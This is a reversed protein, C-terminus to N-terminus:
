ETPKDVSIYVTRVGTGSERFVPGVFEFLNGNKEDLWDRFEVARRDSRFTWGLGMVAVLRGGPKLWEYAHKVHLIDQSRSFPPNMLVRDVRPEIWREEQGAEKLMGPKPPVLELFDECTVAFDKKILSDAMKQNLEVCEVKGGANRASEAIAGLGASPELVTMGFSIEAAELLLDIVDQPTEFFQYEQKPDVYEGVTLADGIITGAVADEASDFVTFIHAQEKRNWVGGLAVLVKNVKEYTKRDLTEKIRAKDGECEARSLIESIEVDITTAM